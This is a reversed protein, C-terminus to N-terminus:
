VDIANPPPVPEIRAMAAQHRLCAVPDGPRDAMVRHDDRAAVVPVDAGEVIGAPVAARANAALLLSVAAGKHARIVGPGVIEVAAQTGRGLALKADVWRLEAEM